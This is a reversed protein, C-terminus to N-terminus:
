DATISFEGNRVDINISKSITWSPPFNNLQEILESVTGGKLFYLKDTFDDGKINLEYGSIAGILQLNELRKEIAQYEKVELNKSLIQFDLTAMDDTAQVALLVDYLEKQGESMNGQYNPIVNIHFWNDKPMLNRANVILRLEGLHDLIEQPTVYDDYGSDQELHVELNELHNHINSM